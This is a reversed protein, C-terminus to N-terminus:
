QPGPNKLYWEYTMRLGDELIIEPKWGVLTKLKECNALRRKVSGPPSLKKDLHHPKWGVVDFLLTALNEIKIERTDGIHVTEVPQKDTAASEMLMIMARVGDDIHCFTRTDEAGFIPFPDIKKATRVCFDPIVHGAYGARPGYFNHPRVILARFDYQQAYHIVFLEGILKSAAYSFRPNYTDEIVLPVNEPTPIPLQNFASLGGSYAENSSTFCFKGEKNNKRFWELMHILALTNVRLVEQPMEYFLRTGNMAALHYVHHYGNGLTSYVTPDTLDLTLVTVRPNDILANFDNDARGRQFNDALVLEVDRTALLQKALHFGVFGAGGTILIKEKM